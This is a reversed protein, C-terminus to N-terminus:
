MGLKTYRITHNIKCFMSLTSLVGSVYSDVYKL